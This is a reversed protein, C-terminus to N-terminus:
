PGLPPPPPDIAARLASVFGLKAVNEEWEPFRDLWKIAESASLKVIDATNGRGIIAWGENATDLLPSVEKLIYIIMLISQNDWNSNQDESVRWGFDFSIFNQSLSHVETCNKM